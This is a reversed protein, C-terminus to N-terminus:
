EATLTQWVEDYFKDYEDFDNFTLPLRIMRNHGYGLVALQLKEMSLKGATILPHEHRGSMVSLLETKVWQRRKCYTGSGVLNASVPSTEGSMGDGDVFAPSVGRRFGAAGLEEVVPCTGGQGLVM